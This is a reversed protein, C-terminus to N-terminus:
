QGFGAPVCYLHNNWRVGADFISGVSGTESNNDVADSRYNFRRSTSLADAPKYLGGTLPISLQSIAVGSMVTGSCCLNKAQAIRKVEGPDKIYGTKPDYATDPLGRGESSVYRNLYVTLDTYDPLCCRKVNNINGIYGTCCQDANTYDPVQQNSPICCNFQNESFVKKLQGSAMNFKTYNSASYYQYGTGAEVFDAGGPVTNVDKISNDLPLTSGSADLQSDDVLKFVQDNTAVAVQPIGILELSSAWSLYKQEESPTFSKVECSVNAYNNPDCEFAGDTVVSTDQPNWSIHKFMEKDISQMKSRAFRNGGGNDSHFKRVWHTTCCTRQNITDLTKYQYLIQKLALNKDANYISLAFPKTVSAQAPDCTMKDYGSHVRSYRNPSTVAVNVGAVVPQSTGSDCWRHDLLGSGDNTQTYVTMEKGFERCCRNKKLDYNPNLAGNNVLKFDPNGCVLEEEWYKEEATSLLASLDATRAKNAINASPGCEFDSFCAAGPARLCANRQYGVSSILSGATSSFIGLATLPALDLMNTSLNQSIAAQSLLTSVTLNQDTHHMLTGSVDTAPCANYYKANTAATNMTQGVGSIKDAADVTSAPFRNNLDFTTVANTVDKGPVCMATVSNALLTAQTSAVAATSGYYEFPRGLIRAGLGVTDSLGAPAAANIANQNTPTNGFRAIRDNFRATNVPQCSHNPSCALTGPATSGSYYLSPDTQTLDQDCPAGRGRYVCRRSQGNMGGILSSLSRKTTSATAVEMGNADFTPWNTSVSSVNQCTYDYGLNRICDNDSSCFHAKQCQAGDTNMDFTPITTNAFNATETVNVTIGNDINLDGFYANVALFMRNSRAKIRRSSGISFWNVGDFSGILSGYDFGYWDRNYGNAFLFHQAELRKQRQLMPDIDATHTWPIMTAPVFCARGYLLDDARYASSNSEKRSEFLDPAYGGGGTSFSQPFIRQLANYYDNGCSVCTSFGGISVMLDYMKDKKVRVMKAPRAFSGNKLFSGYIENFGTYTTVNSPRLVNGSTYSFATGEQAPASAYDEDYNVGNGDYYRHPINKSSVSVTQNVPPETMPPAPYTCEYNVLANAENYVAKLNCKTGSACSCMSNVSTQATYRSKTLSSAAAGTVFYTIEIKQNNFPPTVFVVQNPGTSKSWNAPDEPITIGGVKVIVSSSVLDAYDPLLFTASNDHYTTANVDSSNQIYTKTCRALTSGVRECSGDTKYTIYLNDDPADTQLTATLNISQATTLDDNFTAANFTFGAQATENEYLTKGAYVIKVINNAKTGIGLNTNVTSFNVDDFADYGVDGASFNGPVATSVDSFKVTCHSFEGDVKNLCNYLNTLEMLRVSADYNPDSAPPTTGGSGPPRSACVFYYQPYLTFRSPNVRVDEKASLYAPDLDSNGPKSAGDRVCQGALCCDYGLSQCATSDSCSNGSPTGNGSIALMLGSMSVTAVEQGNVMFLKLEESTVTASCDTCLQQLSFYISGSTTTSLLENTLNYVNCDNQNASSNSPEVQLFYETTKKITDTFSKPKGTLLLFKDSGTVYTYKGVLCFKTTNPLKRLYQSLAKGRVLFSDTFSLPLSLVGASQSSNQQLFTGSFPFTPEQYNSTPTTTTGGNSSSSSNKVSGENSSPTCSSLLLILLLSLAAFFHKQILKLPLSNLM